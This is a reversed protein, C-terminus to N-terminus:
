HRSLHQVSWYHKEGSRGYPHLHGMTTHGSTNETPWVPEPLDDEASFQNLIEVRLAEAKELPDSITQNNM